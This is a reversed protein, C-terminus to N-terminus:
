LQIYRRYYWMEVQTAATGNSPIEVRIDNYGDAAEPDAALHWTGLDSDDTLDGRKNTGAANLVSKVGYSLDITYSDGAGITIGTFDLKEDTTLNTIVPDTGPGTIKITPFERWSGTYQITQTADIAQGAAQDWPIDTPIQYGESGGEVSEFLLYQRAPDYWTPNAAELQVLIEQTGPLRQPRADPMDTIGVSYCNMRRISGDDRTVRLIVPTNTLPKFIEALTDRHTDATAATVGSFLIVLNILRNQLRFGLDTSGHQFPGQQTLRRVPAIGIGTTSLRHFPAGNSLNYTNSGVIAYWTAM